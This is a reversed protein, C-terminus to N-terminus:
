DMSKFRKFLIWSPRNPNEVEGPRRGEDTLGGASLRPRISDTIIGQDALDMLSVFHGPAAQRVTRCFLWALPCCVVAFTSL